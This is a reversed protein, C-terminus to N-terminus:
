TPDTFGQAKRWEARDGCHVVELPGQGSLTGNKTVVVIEGPVLPNLSVRVEGDDEFLNLKM